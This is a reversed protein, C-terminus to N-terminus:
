SVEVWSCFVDLTICRMINCTSSILSPLLKCVTQNDLDLNLLLEFLKLLVFGMQQYVHDAKMLRVQDANIGTANELIIATM